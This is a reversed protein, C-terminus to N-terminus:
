VETTLGGGERLCKAGFIRSFLLVYDTMQGGDDAM